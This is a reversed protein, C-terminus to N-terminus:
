PKATPEGPAGAGSQASPQANVVEVKMPPQPPEAPKALGLERMRDLNKEDEAFAVFKLPDNDFERRVTAPLSMFANEAQLMVSMATQLDPIDSLDLYRPEALPPPFMQGTTEYRQMLTNIDCDEAFEQRTLSPGGPDTGFEQDRQVYMSSVEEGDNNVGQFRM